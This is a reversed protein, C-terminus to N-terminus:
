PSKRMIPLYVYVHAIVNLTVPVQVTPNAPDNSGICVLANYAGAVLGTSNLTVSVTSSGGAPTSGSTPSVNM